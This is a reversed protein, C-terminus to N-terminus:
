LVLLIVGEASGELGVGVEVRVRVEVEVGVKLGVRVEVEVGVKLGVRVELGVGVEVGFVSYYIISKM